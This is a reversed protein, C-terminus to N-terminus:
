VPEWKDGIEKLRRNINALRELPERLEEETDKKRELLFCKTVCTYVGRGHYHIRWAKVNSEFWRNIAAKSVGEGVHVAVEEQSFLIRCGDESVRKVAAEIRNKIEAEKCEKSSTTRKEISALDAGSQDVPLPHPEEKETSKSTPLLRNREIAAAHGANISKNLAKRLPMAENKLSSAELQEIVQLVSYGRSAYSGSLGVKIAALDRADGKVFGGEPLNVPLVAVGVLQRKSAQRQEIPLRRGYERLKEENTKVRYLNADLIYEDIEDEPVDVVRVPVLAMGIEMCVNLRRRGSLLIFDTSAILSELLGITAISSRLEYDDRDGYLYRQIPPIRLKRVEIFSVESAAIEAPQTGRARIVTNRHALAAKKIGLDDGYKEGSQANLGGNTLDLLSSVSERLAVLDDPEAIFEGGCAMGFLELRADEPMMEVLSAIGFLKEPLGRKRDALRCPFSYDKGRLTIKASCSTPEPPDYNKNTM